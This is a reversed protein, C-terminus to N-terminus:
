AHSNTPLVHRGMGIPFSGLERGVKFRVTPPRQVGRDANRAFATADIM